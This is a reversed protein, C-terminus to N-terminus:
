RVRVMIRLIGWQRGKIIIPSSINKMLDFRGGGMNRRYTQLLFSKKSKMQNLSTRDLQKTRARSNAANWVPDSTPPKAFADNIIPYYNNMDGPTCALIDPSANVVENCIPGLVRATYDTHRVVYHPPEVGPVQQYNTDFLADLGIEGREVAQELLQSMQRARETVIKIFPSDVTEIGAEATLTIMDESMELLNATRQKVAEMDEVSAKTTEEILDIAEGIAACQERNRAAADVISDVQSQVQALEHSVQEIRTVAGGIDGSGSRASSAVTSAARSEAILTDILSGLTALTSQITTVANATQRSLDKVEGAVVAFGKGAEGARAAEITANLALLNTQGAIKQIDKSVAAVESLSKQLDPLKGEIHGIGEVLGEITHLAAQSTARAEDMAGAVSGMATKTAVSLDNIRVNAEAMEHVSRVVTELDQKRSLGRAAVQDVRGDIEIAEVGLRGVREAMAKITRQITDSDLGHGGGVPEAPRPAAVVPEVPLSPSANATPARKTFLDVFTM